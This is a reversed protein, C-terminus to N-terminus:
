WWSRVIVDAGVIWAHDWSPASSAGATPWMKGVHAGVGLRWIPRTTDDVTFLIQALLNGGVLSHTTSSSGSPYVTELAYLPDFALRFTTGGGIYTRTAIEPGLTWVNAHVSKQGIDTSTFSGVVGVDVWEWGLGLALDFGGGYWASKETWRRSGIRAELWTHQLSGDATPKPATVGESVQTPQTPAAAESESTPALGDNTPTEQAHSAASVFTISAFLVLTLATRSM